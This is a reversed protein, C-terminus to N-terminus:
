IRNGIPKWEISWGHGMGTGGLAAVGSEGGVQMSEEIRGANCEYASATNRGRQLARAGEAELAVDPEDIGRVRLDVTLAAIRADFIQRACGVCRKDRHRRRRRHADHALESCAARAARHDVRRPKRFGASRARRQLRAQQVRRAVHRHESGIAVSQKVSQVAAREPGHGVARLTDLASDGHDRLAAIEGVVERHARAAQGKRIERAHAILCLHIHRAEDVCEDIVLAHARDAHVEFAELVDAREALGGRARERTAHRDDRELATRRFQARLECQAM